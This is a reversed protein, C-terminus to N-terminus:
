NKIYIIYQVVMYPQRNDFPQNGGTGTIQSYAENSTRQIQNGVNGFDGAEWTMGWSTAVPTTDGTHAFEHM